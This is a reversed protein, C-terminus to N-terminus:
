KSVWCRRGGSKSCEIWGLARMIKNHYIKSRKFTPISEKIRDYYASRLEDENPQNNSIWSIYNSDAEDVTSPITVSTEIEPVSYSMQGLEVRKMEIELKYMGREHELKKLDKEIELRKMEYESQLMMRKEAIGHKYDLELRRMELEKSFDNDEGVLSKVFECLKNLEDDNDADYMFTENSNQYKIYMNNNRLYVKIQEEIKAAGHSSHHSAKFAAHIVAKCGFKKGHEGPRKDGRFSNGFTGIRKGVPADDVFLLTIYFTDEFKLDMKLKADNAYDVPTPEIREEIDDRILDMLSPDRICEKFLDEVMIFYMRFQDAKSTKSLMCARKACSVTLRIDIKNNSSKKSGKAPFSIIYDSNENFNSTIMDRAKDRKAYGLMASLDDLKIPYQEKNYDMRMSDVLFNLARNIDEETWGSKYEMKDRIIDTLRNTKETYQIVIETDKKSEIIPATVVGLREVHTIEAAKKREELKLNNKHKKTKDHSEKRKETVYDYMCCKCYYLGSM